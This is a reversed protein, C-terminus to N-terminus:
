LNKANLAMTVAPGWCHASQNSDKYMRQGM